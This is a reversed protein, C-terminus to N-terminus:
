PLCCQPKWEDLVKCVEEAMREHGAATAHLGDQFLERIAEGKEDLFLKRFNVTQIKKEACYHLLWDAYQGCQRKARANDRDPDWAHVAMDEPAVPLPIGVIVTIKQMQAQKIMAIMNACALRYNGTFIIDNIGGLLILIDPKEPFVQVQCRALMGATTDGSIGCNIVEHGSRKATLDSWRRSPEVGLGYTISDGMCIIKM